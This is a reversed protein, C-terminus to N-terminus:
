RCVIDGDDIARGILAGAGAGIISGLLKSGGPAIINGLVGGAVGGIVLGTTGNDGPANGSNGVQHPECPGDKWRDRNVQGTITCSRHRHNQAWIVQTTDEGLSLTDRWVALPGDAM